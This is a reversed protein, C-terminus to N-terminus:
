LHARKKGILLKKAEIWFTSILAALLVELWIFAPLSTTKFYQFVVTVNTALLSLAIMGLLWFAGFRNSFIGQKLLSKKEQKLNLALFIHGILWTVLAATQALVIDKTGFYVMLYITLIGLALGIGNRFIRLLISRNLYESTKKAPRKLVDPEVAETVFITSSALDMLLEIMIIHIPALPFPIGLALPVLFVSLLIAKASLYYTLGKRFNDIAKRGTAVGDLIHAYNDDTLVLDATEKALDTGIEGMAVGVNASKIAPADNVGDGIVAVEEGQSQLTKVLRLKQLPSIRAFLRVSQLTRNLESKSMEDLQDGTVIRGGLGIKEAIARTTDPHDGTVIFTKIGASMLSAVAEKTEPRVPDNLIALALFTVRKLKGLDPTESNFSAYAVVRSGLNAATTMINRLREKEKSDLTSSKMLAEPSGAIAHVYGKEGKYILIRWPHGQSFGELFLPTQKNPPSDKTLEETIAKDTPDNSYQPLALLIKEKLAQSIEQPTMETGDPLIFREIQMRNETLTGTKDTIISTVSGLTEAGRLRKVVINKRALEFSALALAMTIIVPPQGPVMLFTLALWTLVMQHFYLGRLIGVTPVIFSVIVAFMALYKVLRTMAQQLPTQEKQAIEVEKAIKGLESQGGVATVVAKGEGDLVTTGSFVSNTREALNSGQPVEASAEKRVPLSEGTLSSEDVLLGSSELLRADAPVRVGVSLIVVDGAVVDATRIVQEKGARIVKTTPQTLERLRTMTHDSRRKNIFEVSIYAAVVFLMFVAQVPEGFIFSIAAISLLLVMMPEKIGELILAVSSKPKLERLANTGLIARRKQVERIPLGNEPDVHLIELIRDKSLSWWYSLSATSLRQPKTISNAEKM